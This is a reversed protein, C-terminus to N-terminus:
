CTRPCRSCSPVQDVPCRSAILTRWTNPFAAPRDIQATWKAVSGFMRRYGNRFAERDVFDGGVQGVFVIMPTSDQAATHIGIAANSAGPGRTVFPM